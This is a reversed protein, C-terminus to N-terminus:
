PLKDAKNDALDRQLVSDATQAFVSGSWWRKLSSVVANVDNKHSEGNRALKGNCAGVGNTARKGNCAHGGNLTGNGNTAVQSHSMDSRWYFYVSFPCSKGSYNNQNKSLWLMCIIIDAGRSINRAISHAHRIVNLIPRNQQLRGDDLESQSLDLSLPKLSHRNYRVYQSVDSSIEAPKISYYIYTTPTTIRWKHCFWHEETKM